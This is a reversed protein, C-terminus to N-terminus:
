TRQLEFVLEEGDIEDWQVGTRVFGLKRILGLSPENNPGVSARFLRIGHERSAWDFLARVAEEAYGRRRHDPDVTYGIEVMGRGDPPGHFGINGVVTRDDNRLVMARALWPQESPDRRMQELRRKLLYHIEEPWSAPLRLGIVSEARDRQGSMLAEIFEPSMSVLELRDSLIPPVGRESTGTM